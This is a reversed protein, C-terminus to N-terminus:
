PFRLDKKPSMRALPASTAGMAAVAVCDADEGRQRALMFLARVRCPGCNESVLLFARRHELLYILAVRLPIRPHTCLHCSCVGPGVDPPLPHDVARGAPSRASRWVSRSAQGAKVDPCGSVVTVGRGHDRALFEGLERTHPRRNAPSHRARIRCGPNPHAQSGWCGLYAKGIRM